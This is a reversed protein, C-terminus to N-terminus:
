TQEEVSNDKKILKVLINKGFPCLETIKSFLNFKFIV